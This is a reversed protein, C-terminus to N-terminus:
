HGGRREATKIGSLAGEFNTRALWYDRQADIYDRRAELENQKAQLLQFIGVVMANHELQTLDVIRKRRPLVIDRYYDVRARAAVLAQRAERAESGASALLLALQQQARLLQAEARARAAAGRSFIPIPVEVAPGTTTKGDTEHERHVGVDVDGIGSIRAGPLLRQAAEVEKQAAAIDLRRTSLLQQIEQGTPEASPLQPFDTRIKWDISGNRIGMDRILAERNLLVKEESRALDLKAQEYMAQENELDLDTINGADHQRQALEASARASEVATRDVSLHQTATLLDYFDARVDAAIALVDSAVRFQAGQFAARGAGRRRPLQMIDLLSQTITVEYPRSPWGPFRIEGGLIPNRITSAELLDARAVGLDALVLQVRANNMFAIAVAHDADVEGQLMAQLREDDTMAASSRVEVTQNTRVAVERQVDAVGADRPVTACGSAFIAIFGATVAFSKM